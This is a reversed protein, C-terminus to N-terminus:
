LGQIKFNVKFVCVSWILGRGRGSVSWDGLMLSQVLGRFDCSTRTEDTIRYVSGGAGRVWGGRSVNGCM